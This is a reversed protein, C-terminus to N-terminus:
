KSMRRGFLASDPPFAGPADESGAAIKVAQLLNWEKVNFGEKM